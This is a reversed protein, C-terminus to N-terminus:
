GSRIVAAVIRRRGRRQRFAFLGLPLAHDPPMRRPRRTPELRVLSSKAAPLRSGAPKVPRLPSGEQRVRHLPSGARRLNSDLRHNGAQPRSSVLLCDPGSGPLRSHRPRRDRRRVRLLRRAQPRRQWPSSGQHRRRKGRHHHMAQRRHPRHARIARRAATWTAVRVCPELSRPSCWFNKEIM